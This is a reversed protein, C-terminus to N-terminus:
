YCKVTRGPIAYYPVVAAPLMSVITGKGCDVVCYWTLYSVYFLAIIRTSTCIQPTNTKTPYQINNPNFVHKSHWLIKREPSTEYFVPFYKISLKTSFVYLCTFTHIYLILSCPNYLISLHSLCLSLSLTFTHTHTSHSPSIFRALYLAASVAFCKFASDWDFTRYESESEDTGETQHQHQNIVEQPSVWSQLQHSLASSGYKSLVSGM